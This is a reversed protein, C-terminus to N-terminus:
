DDFRGGGELEGGEAARGDCIEVKECGIALVLAFVEQWLEEIGGQDPEDPGIM